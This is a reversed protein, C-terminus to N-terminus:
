LVTLRQFYMLRTIVTYYRKKKLCFVAYSISPHSSNLRTSKRDQDKFVRVVHRMIRKFISLTQRKELLGLIDKLSGSDAKVSAEFIPLSDHLSLTYSETTNMENSYSLCLNM